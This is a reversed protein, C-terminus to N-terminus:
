RAVVVASARGYPRETVPLKFHKLIDALPQGQVFDALLEVDAGLRNFSVANVDPLLKRQPGIGLQGLEGHTPGSRLIQSSARAWPM